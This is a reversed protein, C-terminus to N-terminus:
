STKEITIDDKKNVNGYGIQEIIGGPRILSEYLLNKNGIVKITTPPNFFGSNIFTNPTIRQDNVIIADAGINKIANLLDILQTSNIKSDFNIEVGEGQVDSMGLIINYKKLNEELATNATEADTASRSLTEHEKALDSVEQALEENTKILESVELALNNENGPQITKSIREHLHFQQSIIFGLIIGIVGILILNRKEFM